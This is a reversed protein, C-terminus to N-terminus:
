DLAKFIGKNYIFLVDLLLWIVWKGLLNWTHKILLQSCIDYEDGWVLCPDIINDVKKKRSSLYIFSKTFTILNESLQVQM